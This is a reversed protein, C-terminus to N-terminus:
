YGHCGSVGDVGAVGAIVVRDISNAGHLTVCDM